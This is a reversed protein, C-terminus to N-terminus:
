EAKRARDITTWYFIDDLYNLAFISRPVVSDSPNLVTVIRGYYAAGEIVIPCRSRLNVSTVVRLPEGVLQQRTESNNVRRLLEIGFPMDPGNRTVLASRKGLFTCNGGLDRFDLQARALNAAKMVPQTTFQALLGRLDTTGPLPIALGRTAGDPQVSRDILMGVIKGDHNVVPSGSDSFDYSGSLVLKDPGAEALRDAKQITARKQTRAWSPVYLKDTPQLDNDSFPLSTTKFPDIYVQALDLKADVVAESVPEPEFSSGFAAWKIYIDRAKADDWYSDPHIVHGATVVRPGSATEIVFGTGSDTTTQGGVSGVVRITVIAERIRQLMTDADPDAAQQASAPLFLALVALSFLTVVQWRKSVLTMM